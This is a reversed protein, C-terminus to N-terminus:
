NSLIFIRAELSVYVLAWEFVQLGVYSNPSQANTYLLTGFNLLGINM